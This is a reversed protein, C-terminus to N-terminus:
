DGKINVIYGFQSFISYFEDLRNGWYVFCCAMPSGKNEENGNIRFKVRTDYLFCISSAKGYIYEKWHSTNTSVPILALVESNYKIHSNYCNKIWDKITTKRNYDRGYPPNVFITKFDWSEKLGDTPLIYKIKSNILSQSNSCPDLDIEKFFLEIANVFKIPTNWSQSISHISMGSPSNKNM